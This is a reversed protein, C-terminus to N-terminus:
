INVIGKKKKIEVQAYKKDLFFKFKIKEKECMRRMAVCTQKDIQTLGHVTVVILGPTSASTFSASVADVVSLNKKLARFCATAIAKDPDEKGVDGGGGDSPDFDPELSPERKKKTRDINEFTFSMYGRKDNKAFVCAYDTLLPLEDVLAHLDSLTLEDVNFIELVVYDDGVKTTTEVAFRAGCGDEWTCVERVAAEVSRSLEDGDDKRKRKGFM